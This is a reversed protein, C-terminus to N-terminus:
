FIEKLILSKVNKKLIICEDQSMVLEREQLEIKFKRYEFRLRLRTLESELKESVEISSDCAKFIITM